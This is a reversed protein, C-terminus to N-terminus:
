MLAQEMEELFKEIDTRLAKITGHLINLLHEIREAVLNFGYINRFVHRFGRFENLLKLTEDSIVSPRIGPLAALMQEILEFHWEPNDPMYEDINRAIVKFINETSTYFDHLISGVARLAFQDSLKTKRTTSDTFLQHQVLEDFLKDINALEMQLRSKVILFKPNNM